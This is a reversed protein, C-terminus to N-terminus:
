NVIEFIKCCECSWFMKGKNPGDKKIVQRTAMHPNEKNKCRSKAVSTPDVKLMEENTGGIYTFKCGGRLTNSNPCTYFTKGENPGEKKIIFAKAETSCGNCHCFVRKLKMEAMSPSSPPSVKLEVKQEFSNTSSTSM